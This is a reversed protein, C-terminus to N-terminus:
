YSATNKHAPFPPIITLWCSGFIVSPKCFAAPAAISAAFIPLAAAIIAFPAAAPPGPPAARAASLLGFDENFSIAIAETMMMRGTKNIAMSGNIIKPAITPKTPPTSLLMPANKRENGMIPEMITAM